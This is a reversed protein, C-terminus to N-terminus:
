GVYSVLGGTAFYRRILVIWQVSLRSFNTRGSFVLLLILTVIAFSLRALHLALSHRQSLYYPQTCFRFLTHKRGAVIELLGIDFCILLWWQM